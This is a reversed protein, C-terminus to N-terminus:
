APQVIVPAPAEELRDIVEFLTPVDTFFTVLVLLGFGFMLIKRNMDDPSSRSPENQNSQM